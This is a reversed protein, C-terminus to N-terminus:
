PLAQKLAGVVRDVDEDSLRPHLPLRLLTCALRDTVPLDGAAGLALQPM